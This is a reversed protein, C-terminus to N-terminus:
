STRRIGHRRDTVCTTVCYLAKVSSEGSRSPVVDVVGLVNMSM